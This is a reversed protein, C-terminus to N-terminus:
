NKKKIRPTFNSGGTLCGTVRIDMLLRSYLAEILWITFVAKLMINPPKMIFILKLSKTFIVFSNGKRAFTVNQDLLADRPIKISPHLNEKWEM